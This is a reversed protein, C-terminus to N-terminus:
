QCSPSRCRLSRQRPFTLLRGSTNTRGCRPAERGKCGFARAAGRFLRRMAEGESLTRMSGGSGRMAQDAAGIRVILDDQIRALAESQSYDGEPLEVFADKAEPPLDSALARQAIEQKSMRGSVNGRIWDVTKSMIREDM